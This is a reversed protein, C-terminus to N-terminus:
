TYSDPAPEGEPGSPWIVIRYRTEREVAIRVGSREDREKLTIPIAGESSSTGGYWTERYSAGDKSTAGSGAPGSACVLYTAPPLGKLVFQGSADTQTAYRIALLGVESAARKQRVATLSLGGVPKGAHDIVTGRIVAEHPLQFDIGQMSTSSDMRLFAGEPSAGRKYDGQVFGDAFATISYTGDTVKGFRYNGNSDTRATQLNLQGVIIPPLLTVTAGEIPSSNDAETVRGTLRPQPEQAQVLCVLGFIVVAVRIFRLELPMQKKTQPM